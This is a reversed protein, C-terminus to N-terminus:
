RAAEDDDLVLESLAYRREPLPHAPDVLRLHGLSADSRRRAERLGAHLLGARGQPV